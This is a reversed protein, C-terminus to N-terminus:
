VISALSPPSFSSDSKFGVVDINTRVVPSRIKDVCFLLRVCRQVCHVIQVQGPDIVEGRAQRPM